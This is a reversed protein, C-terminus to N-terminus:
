SARRWPNAGAAPVRVPARPRERSARGLERRARGPDRKARSARRFRPAFALLRIGNAIGQWGMEVATSVQHGALANRVQIPVSEDLLIRVRRTRARDAGSWPPSRKDGTRSERLSVNWSINSPFVM